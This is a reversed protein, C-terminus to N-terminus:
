ENENEENNSGNLYNEYAKANEIIVERDYGGGNNSDNIAMSLATIRIDVENDKM